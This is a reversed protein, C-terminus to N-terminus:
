ARAYGVIFTYFNSDILHLYIESILAYSDVLISLLEVLAGMFEERFDKERTNDKMFTVVVRSDRKLIKFNIAVFFVEMCGRNVPAM